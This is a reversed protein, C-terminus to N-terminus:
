SLIQNITDNVKEWQINAWLVWRKNSKTEIMWLLIKRHHELYPINRDEIASDINVQNTKLESLARPNTKTSRPNTGKSRSGKREKPEEKTVWYTTEEGKHYKGGTTKWISDIKEVDRKKIHERGGVDRYVYKKNKIIECELLISERTNLPKTKDAKKTNM